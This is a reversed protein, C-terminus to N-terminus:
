LGFKNLTDITRQTLEEQQDLTADTAMNSYEATDTFNEEEEPTYDCANALNQKWEIGSKQSWESIFELLTEIAGPNDALFHEIGQDYGIDKTLQEFNRVGSDGELRYRGKEKNQWHDLIDDFDVNELNQEDNAM